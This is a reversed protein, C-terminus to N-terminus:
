NKVILHQPFNCFKVAGKDTIHITESIEIGWNDLWIGPMVHLTMGPQLVTKDGPRISLTHEGWDPPYNLGTSYGMRSDKEIGYRKVYSNWVDHVEECTVGPKAAEIAINLADVAVDAVEAMRAPPSGLHVTRSMPCHYRMRCGALELITAEGHNFPESSWTLHPTTTGVGSPLMPVLSTYEGGFEDTGHIQASYIKAVADCQRNGPEIADIGAQMALEVLRAADRMYAVEDDSKIVRVWNVINKSDVITANPLAAVLAAHARASYYYADMDVAIRGNGMGRKGLFDGVWDMPHKNEAQVYHDPYGIMNKAELHTTVMGGPQDIGRVICVPEDSTLSVAVLQPTYFSWGDYGTLYNMNAPNSTLLVDFDVQQMRTRVLDLRRKYELKSFCPM